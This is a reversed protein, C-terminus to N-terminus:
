YFSEWWTMNIIFKPFSLQWLTKHCTTKNYKWFSILSSWHFLLKLFNGYSVININAWQWPRNETFFFIVVKHGFSRDKTDFPSIFYFFLLFSRGSLSIMPHKNRCHCKSKNPILLLIDNFISHVRERKHWRQYTRDHLSLYKIEPIVRGITKRYNMADSSATNSLPSYVIPIQKQQLM